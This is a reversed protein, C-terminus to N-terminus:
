NNHLSHSLQHCAVQAFIFPSSVSLNSAYLMGYTHLKQASPILFLSTVLILLCTMPGASLSLWPKFNSFLLSSLEKCNTSNLTVAWMNVYLCWLSLVTKLFFLNHNYIINRYKPVESVTIDDILLYGFVRVNWSITVQGVPKSLSAYCNLTSCVSFNTSDQGSPIKPPPVFACLVLLYLSLELTLAKMCSIGVSTDIWTIFPENYSQLYLDTLHICYWSQFISIGMTLTVNKFKSSHSFTRLDSPKVIVPTLVFTCKLGSLFKLTRRHKLQWRYLWIELQQSKSLRQILQPSVSQPPVWNSLFGTHTPFSM